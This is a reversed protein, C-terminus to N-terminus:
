RAGRASRGTLNGARAGGLTGARGATGTTGTAGTTGRSDPFGYLDSYQGSEYLLLQEEYWAADPFTWTTYEFTTGEDGKSGVTELKQPIHVRITYILLVQEGQTRLQPPDFEWTWSPFGQAEFTGQDNEEFFHIREQLKAQALGRAQRETTYRFARIRSEAILGLVPVIFAALITVALVLELLTFARDRRTRSRARRADPRRTARRLRSRDEIRSIM